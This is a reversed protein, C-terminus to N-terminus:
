VKEWTVNQRYEYLNRANFYSMCSRLGNQFRKVTDELHGSFPIISERGEVYRPEHGHADKQVSYSAAGRYIKYLKNDLNVTRAPSEETSAIVSGFMCADAWILAKCFDGPTKLGGDCIIQVHPHYKEKVEYCEQLTSIMPRYIGTEVKTTCNEGGAIGVRIADAGWEALKKFCEGSAVNGAVIWIPSYGEAHRIDQICKEVQENAGNATDILFITCGVNKLARFRQLYDGTVGIACGCDLKYNCLLYEEVQEDISMFRHIFGMGGYQCVNKATTGDCVDPMPSALFPVDLTKGCFKIATSVDARHEISSKTRPVLTIDKYDLM